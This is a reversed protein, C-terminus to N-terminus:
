NGSRHPHSTLHWGKCYPCRYAQLGRRGHDACWAITARAEELSDYRNKSTCAKERRAEDRQRADDQRREEERAFLDDMGAGDALQARFADRQRQQASRKKSGM